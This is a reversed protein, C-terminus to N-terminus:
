SISHDLHTCTQTTELTEHIKIYKMPKTKPRKRERKKSVLWEVRVTHTHCGIHPLRHIERPPIYQSRGYIAPRGVLSSLGM